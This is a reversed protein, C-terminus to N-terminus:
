QAAPWVYRIIDIVIDDSVMGGAAIIRAVEKGIPSGDRTAQRLMDGTSLQPIGLQEVLHFAQTSHPCRPTSCLGHM